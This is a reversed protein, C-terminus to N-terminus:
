RPLLEKRERISSLPKCFGTRRWVMLKTIHKPNKFGVLDVWRKLNEEGNIDIRYEEYEKPPCRRIGKRKSVSCIANIGLDGLMEMIQEKLAKDEFQISGTIRPYRGHRFVLSFDTDIIGGLCYKRMDSDMIVAPIKLRGKKKGSPLGLVNRKFTSIAKSKFVIQLTNKTSKKVWVKKNYLRFILPCMTKQYFEMEEKYDGSFVNLYAWGDPRKFISLHGDGMHVGTEYALDETLRDPVKIGSKIDNRSFEVARM